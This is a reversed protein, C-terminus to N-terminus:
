TKLLSFKTIFYYYKQFFISSTGPFDLWAVDLVTVILPVKTFFPTVDHHIVHFVDVRSFLLAIPILIQDQFKTLFFNSLNYYSFNNPLEFNLEVGQEVFLVYQNKLDEVALSKILNIVYMGTGTFQNKVERADIGIIMILIFKFGKQLNEYNGCCLEGM